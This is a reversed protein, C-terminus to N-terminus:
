LVIGIVLFILWPSVKFHVVYASLPGCILGGSSLLWLKERYIGVWEVM